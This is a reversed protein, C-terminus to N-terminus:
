RSSKHYKHCQTCRDGAKAPNHCSACTRKQIPSFSSHFHAPDAKLSWNKAYDWDNEGPYAELFGETAAGTSSYHCNRCDMLLLHTAHDYRTLSVRPSNSIFGRWNIHAGTLKNDEDRVDDISHCKFCQGTASSASGRRFDFGEALHARVLPDDIRRVLEDLWNKLLLDAHGTSRYSVVGYQQYWGGRTAWVTPDIVPLETSESASDDDPEEELAFVENEGDGVKEPDAGFNEKADGGFNEKEDGGFNEKPDEGFNEPTDPPPDGPTPPPAPPASVEPLTGKRYDDVEGLLRVYDKESFGRRMSDLLGSPLGAILHQPNSFGSEELRRTLEDHGVRNSPNDNPSSQSLDRALEKVSWALREVKGISEADLDALAPDFPNVKQERLSKWAERADAPLLQLTPFPISDPAESIWTGISRPPDSAALKENLLTVNLNPFALFPIATGGRTSEEHCGACSTEFPKVIMAEGSPEPAHCALCSASESHRRAPDFGPPVRKPHEGELEEPFHKQYHSNHDFRIGTRRRYPYTVERFEPHGNSFSAFQDQHCVQCQRNSLSTIEVDTGHHEHHCTACHIDGSRLNKQALASAAVMLFNSSKGTGKWRHGLHDSTHPEFAFRAQEGGITDHCALCLKGDEIARHRSASAHLKTLRSLTLRQDSHCGSCKAEIFSHNASLPGASLSPSAEEGDSSGRSFTLILTAITITSVAITFQGRRKRLSRKPQCSPVGQCCSGDPLPGQECPPVGHTDQRTCMWRAGIKRPLCQGSRRGDLEKGAQCTGRRDPGLYCPCDHCDGGCIWGQNPRNYNAEKHNTSQFSDPM